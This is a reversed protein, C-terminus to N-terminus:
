NAEEVFSKGQDNGIRFVKDAAAVMEKQDSIMIIQLGVKDSIEKIVISAKEQYAPDHLFKTPEDLFLVPRNKKLSWAAVRLALSAIDGVGGGGASLIDTIEKGRKTFVLDAETKNRRITYKLEFKYPDPFVASLAMSVLNSIHFEIKKQVSAAVIQTIVRAKNCNEMHVSASERENKLDKVQEQMLSRRGELEAVKRQYFAIDMADGSTSPRSRRSNKRSM